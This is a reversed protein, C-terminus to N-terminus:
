TLEPGAAQPQDKVKGSAYILGAGALSGAMMMYFKWTLLDDNPNGPAEQEVMVAIDHTADAEQQEPTQAQRNEAMFGIAGAIAVFCSAM